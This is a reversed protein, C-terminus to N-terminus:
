ISQVGVDVKDEVGGGDVHLAVLLQGFDEDADAHVGDGGLLIGALHLVIDGGLGKVGDHPLQFLMVLPQISFSRREDCRRNSKAPRSM